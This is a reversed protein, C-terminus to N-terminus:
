AAAEATQRARDLTAIRVGALIVAGGVLQLPHPRESLILFALVVGAVPVFYTVLAGTGAGFRRVAWYYLVFAIVTAIITIFLILAWSELSWSPVDRYGQELFGLPALMVAGIAITLTTYALPSRDRMAIQGLVSYTAWCVAGGLLLLDGVLRRDTVETGPAQGGLLVLAGGVTGIALGLVKGQTLPAGAILTALVATIVPIGTPVILAGDSAPTMTLAVFVLANYGFVGFIAAIVVYRLRTWVLPTRTIRAIALLVVAAIAFRVASMELPPVKSVVVKGVIWTGGWALAVTLYTFLVAPSIRM